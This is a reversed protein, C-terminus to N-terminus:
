GTSMPRSGILYSIFLENKPGQSVGNATIGSGRSIIKGLLKSILVLLGQLDDESTLALNFLNYFTIQLNFRGYRLIAYRSGHKCYFAFHGYVEGM